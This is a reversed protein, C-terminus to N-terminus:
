TLVMDDDSGAENWGVQFYPGLRFDLQILYECQLNRAEKKSVLRETIRQLMEVLVTIPMPDCVQSALFLCVSIAVLDSEKIDDKNVEIELRLLYSQALCIASGSFGVSVGIEYLVDERTVSIYKTGGPLQAHALYVNASQMEKHTERRWARKRQELNHAFIRAEGPGSAFWRQSMSMMAHQDVDRKATSPPPSSTLELIETCALNCNSSCSTGSMTARVGKGALARPDNPVQQSSPDPCQRAESLREESCYLIPDSNGFYDRALHNVDDWLRNEAERSDLLCMDSHLRPGESPRSPLHGQLHCGSQFTDYDDCGKSKSSYLVKATGHQPAVLMDPLIDVVSHGFEPATAPGSPQWMETLNLDCARWNCPGIGQSQPPENYRRAEASIGFESYLAAADGSPGVDLAAAWHDDLADMATHDTSTPDPPVKDARRRAFRSRVTPAHKAPQAQEDLPLCPRMGRYESACPQQEALVPWRCGKESGRCASSCGPTPHCASGPRYSCMHSCNAVACHLLDRVDLVPQSGELQRKKQKGSPPCGRSDRLGESRYMIHGQPIHVARHMPVSVNLHEHHHQSSRTAAASSPAHSAALVVELNLQFGNLSRNDRDNGQGKDGEM